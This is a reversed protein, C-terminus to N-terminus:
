CSAHHRQDRHAITEPIPVARDACAPCSADKPLKLERWRMTAADLLLLRGVLSEGVGAIMKIAEMAQMTGIIGVLPAMVGNNACSEDLEGGRPYLCQYCPSAADRPDFATIQGQMRIAAASILPKGHALCSENIAFRSAFNDCADLVLDAQGVAEDLRVGQLRERLAVIEVDPNLGHLRRRASEVKAEGLSREAHAIQRQLNSLEVVDDDAILLRGSGAAALYMAAPCGLGGMGVILVSADVLRQQGAIDMEPLMIQRSFRLLQQENM